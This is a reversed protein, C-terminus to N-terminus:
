RARLTDLVSKPVSLNGDVGRGLEVRPKNAGHFDSGGTVGLKFRRALELYRTVDEPRHDSHYAEIARLGMESMEGVTDALEDHGDRAGREV